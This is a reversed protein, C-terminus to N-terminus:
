DRWDEGVRPAPGSRFEFSTLYTVDSIDIGGSGNINGRWGPWVPPPGHRFMFAVLYTVDAIDVSWDGNVDGPQYNFAVHVPGDGVGYAALSTGSSDIIRLTDAFGAAFCTGDQYATATTCGSDVVIPNNADHLVLMQGADLSYVYGRGSPDFGGAAIYAINDPGVSIQGPSGGLAASDLVSNASPDLTYLIGFKSFYDGTCVVIIHGSRDTALYQPNVGVDIVTLVTDADTDIVWVEGQGYMFTGLDFGSHAVYLRRDYIVMGEPGTGVPIHDIVSRADVDIKVVENTVLASAYAIHDNLFVMWYPNTAVGIDIFGLTTDATLDIVQIENTGSAVVYAITGRVIVQNPYSFLDSGITIFDNDVIRNALNVRSMTEGTTNLVYATPQADLSLVPSLTIIILCIHLKM